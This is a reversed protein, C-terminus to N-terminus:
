GDKKGRINEIAERASIGVRGGKKVLEILYKIDERNGIIGLIMAADERIREDDHKLLRIIVEKAQKAIKIGEKQFSEIIAMAGLRVIFERHAILEAIIKSLNRKKVIKKVLEIEGYRLKEAIYQYYDGKYWNEIWMEAEAETLAGIFRFDGILTTPVSKINYIRAYNMFLNVDVIHHESGLKICVKNLVDVLTRCNPCFQSVFSLIRVNLNKYRKVRSVMKITAIFSELETYRPISHFYISFNEFEIASLGLKPDPRRTYEYQIRSNLNALEEVFKLMEASQYVKFFVDHDVQKIIKRAFSPLM